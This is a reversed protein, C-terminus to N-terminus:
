SPGSDSIEPAAWIVTDQPGTYKDLPLAVSDTAEDLRAAGSIVVRGDSQTPVATATCGTLVSALGFVFVGTLAVGGRPTVRRAKARIM